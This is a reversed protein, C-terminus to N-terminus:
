SLGDDWYLGVNEYKRQGMVLLFAGVLECVEAGDYAGMTVDFLRGEKNIWTHEANFLLSKWAHVFPKQVRM